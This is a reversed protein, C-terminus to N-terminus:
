PLFYALPCYNNSCVRNLELYGGAVERVVPVLLSDLHCEGQCVIRFYVIFFVFCAGGSMADAILLVRGWGTHFVFYTDSIKTLIQPHRQLIFIM